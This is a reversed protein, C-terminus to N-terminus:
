PRACHIRWRPRGWVRRAWLASSRGKMEKVLNLVAIHELIREKPKDLGFHDEDLTRKVHEVDLNDKTRKHWPLNIMWDLYGRLVTSEPSLPPTKKLKQYEEM